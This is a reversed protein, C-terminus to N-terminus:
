GIAGDRFETSVAQVLWGLVRPHLCMQLHGMADFHVVPTGPLVQEQQPYVINDQLTLAIHMLQRKETTESAALAQLWDSKWVMQTGNRTRSGIAIRTGQHPSGLTVIRAVRRDPQSGRSRLWARIALGGMSHGVLVLRDTQCTELVQVVAREIATTYDDISVFLPELDVAMVPHGAVRLVSIADDWVRHNCLYGHVLLVPLKDRLPDLEPTAVLGLIGRNKEPWPQRFMYVVIAARLEGVLALCWNWLSGSERARLMSILIVLFQLFLPVTIATATILVLENPTSLPPDCDKTFYIGILIGILLQFFYSIRLLRALM